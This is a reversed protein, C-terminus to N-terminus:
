APHSRCLDGLNERLGALGHSQEAFHDRRFALVAHDIVTVEIKRLSTMFRRTAMRIEPRPELMTASISAALAASKGASITATM